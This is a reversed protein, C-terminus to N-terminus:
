KGESHTVSDNTVGPRISSDYKKLSVLAAQQFTPNVTFMRVFDQNLGLKNILDTTAGQVPGVTQKIMKITNDSMAGMKTNPDKGFASTLQVLPHNEFWGKKNPASNMNSLEELVHGSGPDSQLTQDLISHFGDNGALSKLPQESGM